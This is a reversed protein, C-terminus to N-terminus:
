HRPLSGEHTPDRRRILTNVSGVCRGWSGYTGEITARESTRGEKGVLVAIRELEDTLSSALEVTDNFAGAIEGFVGTRDTPLRAAFDGKRLARLSSLFLRADIMDGQDIPTASVELDALRQRTEALEDILQSKDQERREDQTGGHSLASEM